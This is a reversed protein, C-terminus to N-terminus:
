LSLPKGNWDCYSCRSSPDSVSLLASPSVNEVIAAAENTLLLEDLELRRTCVISHSSVLPMQQQNMVLTTNSLAPLSQAGEKYLDWM